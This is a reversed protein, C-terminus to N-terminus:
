VPVSAHCMAPETGASVSAAHLVRFGGAALFDADGVGLQNLEGVAPGVPHPPATWHWAKRPKVYHRINTYINFNPM